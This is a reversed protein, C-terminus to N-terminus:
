KHGGKQITFNIMSIEVWASRRCATIKHNDGYLTKANQLSAYAETEKEALLALIDKKLM